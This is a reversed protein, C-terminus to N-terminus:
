GPSCVNEESEPIILLLVTRLVQGDKIKLGSLKSNAFTAIFPGTRSVGHVVGLVITFKSSFRRRLVLRKGM